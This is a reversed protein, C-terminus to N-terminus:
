KKGKGKPVINVSDTGEIYVGDLTMGTLTAETSESDLLLDQTNFHFLLDIYGDGDIDKFSWRVPSAGAFLVTEPAVSSVDFRYTTLIAVPVVGRSKLNISNPYSGPKIDIAVQLALPTLLFAHSKGDITGYGVIQGSDNIDNACSLYTWGSDAPILDYLNIMTGNRYLFADFSDDAGIQSHGVVEGHNNIGFAKSNSGGLTGLDEMTGKRWRFAHYAGETTFAWGAIESLDNIDQASSSTAGQYSGEGGLTGLDIMTKGDFLFAHGYGYSTITSEGVVQGLNNIAWAFSSEGGLTGLYTVTDDHYLFAQGFINATEVGVVQGMDNICLAVSSGTSSFLPNISGEQYIFAGAQFNGSSPDTDSYGVVVGTNNISYAWSIGNALTGLNIMVGHDYLFARITKYDDGSTHSYGVVKGSNNIAFAMSQRGGLTGLDTITYQQSHVTSAKFFGFILVLLLLILEMNRLRQM